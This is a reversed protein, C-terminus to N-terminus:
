GECLFRGGALFEASAGCLKTFMVMAEGLSM